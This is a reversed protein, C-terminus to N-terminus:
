CSCAITGFCSDWRRARKTTATTPCSTIPGTLKAMRWPGWGGTLHVKCGVANTWIKQIADLYRRDGTLAAVDAMGSYLYNARVAHGVAESQEVVPIHNQNYTNGGPAGRFELFLRALALWRPDGTARYLKVLGMEIVEHGPPIRNKGDGFDSQVLNASRLCVDLLERSGTAQYHAAGAEYLHGLDYLEHSLIPDKEWRNTGIWEHAPSDPHMTRWTYLYGDPEQAAAVQRIFGDAQAAIAPDPKVSLCFSAGELVKYVDSDDFPYITVPKNQFNTEGSRRRLLTEAALDFNQLRKSSVCQAMAFPLTVTANTSQRQQWMGGTFHVDTFPVPQVPYDASAAGAPAPVLAAMLMWVIKM